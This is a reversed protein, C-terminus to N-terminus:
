TKWASVWWNITEYRTMETLDSCILQLDPGMITKKQSPPSLPYWTLTTEASSFPFYTVHTVFQSLGNCTSRLCYIFFSFLSLIMPGDYYNTWDNMNATLICYFNHWHFGLLCFHLTPCLGFLHKTCCACVTINCSWPSSDHCTQCPQWGTATTIEVTCSFDHMDSTVSVSM